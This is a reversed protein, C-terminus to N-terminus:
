RSPSWTRTKQRRHLVTNSPSRAASHSQISNTKSSFL